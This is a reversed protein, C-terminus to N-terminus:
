EQSFTVKDGSVDVNVGIEFAVVSAQSGGKISRVLREMKSLADMQDTAVVFLGSTQGDVTLQVGCLSGRM